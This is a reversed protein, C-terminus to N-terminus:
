LNTVQVRREAGWEMDGTGRRWNGLTFLPGHGGDWCGSLRHVRTILTGLSISYALKLLVPRRSSGRNPERGCGPVWRWSGM